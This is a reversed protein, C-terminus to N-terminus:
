TSVIVALQIMPQNRQKQVLLVLRKSSHVAVKQFTLAKGELAVPHVENLNLHLLHTRSGVWDSERSIISVRQNRM